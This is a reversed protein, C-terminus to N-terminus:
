QDAGGLDRPSQDSREVPDSIPDPGKLTFLYNYRGSLKVGWVGIGGRSYFTFSYDYRGSLKVDGDATFLSRIVTGTQYKVDM